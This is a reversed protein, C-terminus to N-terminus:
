QVRAEAQKVERNDDAIFQLALALDTSNVGGDMVSQLVEATTLGGKKDDMANRIASTVRKGYDFADQVKDPKGYDMWDVDPATNYTLVCGAAKCLAKKKDNWSVSKCCLVEKVYSAIRTANVGKTQEAIELVSSLWSLNNTVQGGSERAAEHVALILLQQIQKNRGAIGNFVERLAQNFQKSTQINQTTFNKLAM